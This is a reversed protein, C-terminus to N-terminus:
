VQSGTANLSQSIAGNELFQICGREFLVELDGSGCGSGDFRGVYRGRQDLIGPAEGSALRRGKAALRLGPRGVGEIM